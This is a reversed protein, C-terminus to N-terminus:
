SMTVNHMIRAVKLGTKCLFTLCVKPEAEAATEPPKSMKTKMEHTPDETVSHALAKLSLM